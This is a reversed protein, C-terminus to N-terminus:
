AGWTLTQANSLNFSATTCYVASNRYWIQYGRTSGATLDTMMWGQSSMLLDPPVSAPDQPVDTLDPFRSSGSPSNSKIALKVQNPNNVCRLGDGFPLAAMPTGTFYVCTSVPPMQTGVMTVRGAAWKDGAISASGNESVIELRAGFGFSNVCGEGSSPASQNGCPCTAAPAEGTCWSTGIPTTGAHLPDATLSLCATLAAPLFSLNPKM